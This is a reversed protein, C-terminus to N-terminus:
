DDDILDYEAHKDGKANNMQNISHSFFMCMINPFLLLKLLFHLLQYGIQSMM